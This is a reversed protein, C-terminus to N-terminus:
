IYFDKMQWIARRLELFVDAPDSDGLSMLEPLSQLGDFTIIM